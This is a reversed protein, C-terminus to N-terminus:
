ISPHFTLTWTVPNSELSNRLIILLRFCSFVGKVKEMISSGTIRIFDVNEPHTVKKPTETQKKSIVAIICWIPGTIGDAKQKNSRNHVM